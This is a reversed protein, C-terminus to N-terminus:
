DLFFIGSFLQGLGNDRFGGEETGKSGAQGTTNAFPIISPFADYMFRLVKKFKSPVAGPWPYRACRASRGLLSGGHLLARTTCYMNM